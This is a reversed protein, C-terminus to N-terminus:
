PTLAQPTAAHFPQRTSTCAQDDLKSPAHTCRKDLRAPWARDARTKVKGLRPGEWQSKNERTRPARQLYITHTRHLAHRRHRGFHTRTQVADSYAPILGHIFGPGTPIDVSQHTDETMGRADGTYLPLDYTLAVGDSVSNRIYIVSPPCPDTNLWPQPCDFLM